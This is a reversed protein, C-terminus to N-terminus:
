FGNTECCYKKRVKNQVCFVCLGFYKTINDDQIVNKYKKNTQYLMRDIGGHIKSRHAKHLVDFLEGAIVYMKISPIKDSASLILKEIGSVIITDYYKELQYDRNSEKKIKM